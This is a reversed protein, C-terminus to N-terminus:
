VTLLSQFNCSTLQLKDATSQKTEQSPHISAVSLQMPHLFSFNSRWAASEAGSVEACAIQKATKRSEASKWTKSPQKKKCHWSFQVLADRSSAQPQAKQCNLTKYGFFFTSNATDPFARALTLSHQLKVHLVNNQLSHSLAKGEAVLSDNHRKRSYVGPHGRQTSLM